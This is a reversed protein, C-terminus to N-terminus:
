CRTQWRDVFFAVFQTDGSRDIPRFPRAYIVLETHAMKQVEMGRLGIVDWSVRRSHVM